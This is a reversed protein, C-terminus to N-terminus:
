NENEMSFRYSATETGGRFIKLYYTGDSQISFSEDLTKGSQYLYRTNFQHISTGSADFLGIKIKYSSNSSTGNLLELRFHYTSDEDLDISYIDTDDTYKLSNEENRTMNLSGQIVDEAEQLTIPAAMSFEDNFERDSNQVLGNQLSPHISFAYKAANDQGSRYIKLYYTGASVSFTERRHGDKGYLYNTYFQHVSTGYMDFLEIVMKSSSNRTTGNFLNFYFTYEGANTFELSYYDTDDTNKLSNNENRSMNLSGKIDSMAEELTVPAAMSIDDNPERDTNQQLGNALSPYISYAYRVAEHNARSLKLYYTGETVEFTERRKAGSYYLYNTYFDHVLTGYQDYLEIQMKHSGNHATGNQLNIYFTYKGSIDFSISYYDSNDSHYLSNEENRSMNLTGEIDSLIEEEALPAAMFIEDNLEKTRNDQVLGNEISPYISFAYRAANARTRTIKIIYYDEGAYSDMVKRLHHGTAYGAKFADLQTGYINYIYAYVRGDTTSNGSTGSLLNIFFAYQSDAEEASLYIKYCKERSQDPPTNISGTTEAALAITQIEGNCINAEDMHAYYRIRAKAEHLTNQSASMNSMVTKAQDIDNLGTEVFYLGVEKKNELITRDYGFTETDQAGNIVALIFVSKQVSGSELENKWYALGSPDPERNFLNHYISRIFSEANTGSPYLRKTEPQDFFSRAIGELSLDTDNVWYALGAADPARNFTAVYLRTVSDQTPTEAQVSTIILTFVSVLTIIITKL